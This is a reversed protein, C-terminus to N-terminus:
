LFTYSILVICNVTYGLKAIYGCDRETIVIFEDICYKFGIELWDKFTDSGM